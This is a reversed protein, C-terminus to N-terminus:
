VCQFYWFIYKLMSCLKFYFATFIQQGSTWLCHTQEVEETENTDPNANIYQISNKQM